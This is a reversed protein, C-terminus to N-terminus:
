TLLRMVYYLILGALVNGAITLVLETVRSRKNNNQLM